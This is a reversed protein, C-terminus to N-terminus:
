ENAGQLGPMSMQFEGCTSVAHEWFSRTTLYEVTFLQGFAEARKYNTCVSRELRAWEEEGLQRNQNAAFARDLTRFLVAVVLGIRQREQENLGSPDAVLYRAYVPTLDPDLLIETEFANFQDLTDAYMATRTIETNERVGAILIILTIM